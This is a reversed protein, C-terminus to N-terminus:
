ASKNTRQSFNSGEVKLALLLFALSKVGYKPEMLVSALFLHLEEQAGRSMVIACLELLAGRLKSKGDRSFFHM